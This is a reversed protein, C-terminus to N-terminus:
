RRPLRSRRRYRQAVLLHPTWTGVHLIEAPVPVGVVQEVLCRPDTDDPLNAHLAYHRLDDQAILGASVAGVINYHRAPGLPHRELLDDCRFFVHFMRSVAARGDLEIGLQERVTSSGGDCGVLYDAVVRVRSGDADVVEAEIGTPSPTFTDLRVGFRVTVPALAEAATRLLPELTYQSIRQYAQRPESGDHCADIRAQMANTSPYVLRHIPADNLSTTVLVDMPADLPYGARRIRGELGLRAYIEMSRANCLEMKPLISHTEHAEVVTCPVGLRGLGIALTLGVPGGGAILM